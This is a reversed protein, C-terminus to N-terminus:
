NAYKHVAVLEGGAVSIAVGWRSSSKPAPLVSLAESATKAPSSVTGDPMQRSGLYMQMTKNGQSFLFTMTLVHTRPEWVANSIDVNLDGNRVARGIEHACVCM